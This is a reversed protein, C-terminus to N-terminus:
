ANVEDCNKVLVVTINDTGGAELAAAILADCAARLDSENEKIISCIKEDDIQGCLGDSCFLLIEDKQWEVNGIDPEVDFATGVARTIINRQPHVSAEQENIRGMDVLEQVLSHDHTVRSFTGDLKLLYIRSDGVHSFLFDTQHIQAMSLTTGMGYCDADETARTYVASNAREVAALACLTEDMDANEDCFDRVTELALVSAINGAKHGGMGDAVAVVLVDTDKKVFTLFADQNMSRVNGIHTDAAYIM